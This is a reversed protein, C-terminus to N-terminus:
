IVNSTFFYICFSILSTIGFLRTIRKVKLIWIENIIESINESKVLTKNIGFKKKNIKKNTKHSTSLIVIRVHRWKRKFMRAASAGNLDKMHFEIFIIDPIFNISRMCDLASYYNSVNKVQSDVLHKKTSDNYLIDDDVIVINPSLFKM